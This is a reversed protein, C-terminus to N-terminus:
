ICELTDSPGESDLVRSRSMLGGWYNKDGPNHQDSHSVHLYRYLLHYCSAAKRLTVGGSGNNLRYVGVAM